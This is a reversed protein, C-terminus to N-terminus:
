GVAPRSRSGPRCATSSPRACSRCRSAARSAARVRNPAHAHRNGAVTAPEAAPEAEAEAQLDPAREEVFAVVHNLTPYDRLKLTDDFPIGYAERIAAFVEAQKVTDIGLDAELDLELDLLDPPYGTQEAVLALVPAAPDEGSRPQARRRGRRPRSRRTAALDSGPGAAREEVFAVM